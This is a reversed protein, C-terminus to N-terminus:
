NEDILEKLRAKSLEIEKKPTKQGKKKFAHPILIKDSVALFYIIRYIGKEDKIRLEYANKHITKMPKSQPMGLFEGNQLVMLLAGIEKKVETSLSRVFIKAKDNWVIKKL